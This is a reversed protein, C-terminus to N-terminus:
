HSKKTTVSRSIDLIGDALVTNAEIFNLTTSTPQTVGDLQIVTASVTCTAVRATGTGSVTMGIGATLTDIKTASSSNFDAQTVYTANLSLDGNQLVLPSIANIDSGGIVVTTTGLLDLIDTMEGTTDMVNLKTYKGEQVGTTASM